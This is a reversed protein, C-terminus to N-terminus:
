FFLMWLAVARYLAPALVHGSKKMIFGLLLAQVLSLVLVQWTLTTGSGVLFPVQWLLFVGATVLWGWKEGFKGNLRLQIYGRFITEEALAYVLLMLLAGMQASTVGALIIMFKGRLFITLVALMLGTLLGIRTNEKGWGMSKFPQGRAILAVLFPIVAIVAVWVRDAYEGANINAAVSKMFNLIDTTFYLFAFVYILVFLVLAYTFERQVYKFEIRKMRKVLPSVGVILVTAIVGLWESLNGLWYM